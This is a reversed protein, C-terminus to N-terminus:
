ETASKAKKAKNEGLREGMGNHATIRVDPQDSVAGPSRHTTDLHEPALM